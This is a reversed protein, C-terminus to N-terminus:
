KESPTSRGLGFGKIKIRIKPAGSQQQVKNTERSVQPVISPGPVPVVVPKVVIRPPESSTAAVIGKSEMKAREKELRKKEKKLRKRELYEPDDKKDLKDERKRKKEKDKEKKEKKKKEKAEEESPIKAKNGGADEYKSDATCQLDKSIEDHMSLQKNASAISTTMRSDRDHFSNAEENNNVKPTGRASRAPADVSVSSCPGVENENGRASRAPTQGLNRTSGEDAKSSSQRVRIKLVNPRRESGQSVSNAERVNEVIIPVGGFHKSTDTSPERSVAGKVVPLADPEKPPMMEVVPLDDNQMSTATSPELLRTGEAPPVDFHKSTDTSIEVTMDRAQQQEVDTSVEVVLHLQPDVDASVELPVQTSPQVDASTEQPVQVPQELPAMGNQADGFTEPVTTPPIPKPVGFLTPSRGAVIQLICFVHHRLYINNYSMRSTLLDLLSVLTAYSIQSEMKSEVNVQCLHMVHLALKSQGRLSQEDYLFKLFLSIAEDLSNYHFELDLLVKSAEIRVKWPNRSSRFPKILEYIHGVSVSTSMKLAIQALARVCSVTLVGNYSPMFSDLQLLRDIRKLLSTLYSISQQGFELEGIAQVMAALWYVDSYPNGNNDNYKLLQLIFEIAERPSRKNAGRALAVAHPIAELVFYEPIDRFDNPRPLGIDPDFRRSKYFKVLHLLGTLDTEESATVALTYAAEIRVRWFAKSDHLFNNLANVVPFSLQPLRELVAIAQSQAVVDKDKELQNIWMQIPQHFHIEALYEMEPDIRIWLLPSEMGSRPADQNALDANDDSGDPKAGKKSKPNRKASLKSHCQLEVLQWAEGALPLVPHDYVGDLEHVRISMMGPWGGDGGEKGSMVSESGSNNDTSMFGSNAATCDRMVALEVMNRRKSYSVGMRMLPCGCSEIWRPFFEKLFPRELNGVRNVLHRFERTSLKKSRSTGLERGIIMQLIKQFSDPGMQKELMQLVAVAKWSRIKGYFGIAQTGYLDTSAATSSLATLGSVDVKCVACNAKFRRFRAENNGLFRKMFNDTLFGALGDLLWEDVPDEATVYVGFWQRALAHALKMRTDIAQDLVREDYLLDSSFVCMSAGLCTSSVLVEPPLFIQKYSGLPFEGGLYEEYYSYVTHFFGMTHQLKPLNPSFCMHSVVTNHGDPLVELPGVALSIHHASVPSTLEYVFTKRPPDDKTLVQYLLNGNSVALFDGRVTFELDFSCCQNLSDMCPFWCCARKIQSNTHALSKTFHIGTEPGELSYDIHVLKVNQAKDVLHGNCGDAAQEDANNPVVSAENETNEEVNGNSLMTDSKQCQIVLNPLAEQALTSIYLSSATTAASNSCEVSSWRREDESSKDQFHPSYEFKSQEGDVTVNGISLNGANLAIQETGERLQIKLETYGFIRKNDVDVSLCLKQHLLVCAPSESKQEEGKQRRAKAM